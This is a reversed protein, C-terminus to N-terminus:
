LLLDPIRTHISTSKYLVDGKSTGMGEIYEPSEGTKCRQGSVLKGSQASKSKGKVNIKWMM